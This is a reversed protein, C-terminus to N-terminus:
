ILQDQDVNYERLESTSSTSKYHNVRTIMAKGDFSVKRLLVFRTKDVSIGDPFGTSTYEYCLPFWKKLAKSM